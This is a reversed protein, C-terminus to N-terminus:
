GPRVRQRAIERRMHVRVVQWQREGVGARQARRDFGHRRDASRTSATASLTLRDFTAARRAIVRKQCCMAATMLHVAADTPSVHPQRFCGIGARTVVTEVANWVGDASPDVVASMLEQLSAVSRLPPASPTSTSERSSAGQLCALLSLAVVHLALPLNKHM